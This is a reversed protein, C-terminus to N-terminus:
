TGTIRQGGLLLEGEKFEIRCGLEQMVERAAATIWKRNSEAMYCAVSLKTETYVDRMSKLDSERVERILYMRETQDLEALEAKNFIFINMPYSPVPIVRTNIAKVLNQDHMETKTLLTLRRVAEEKVREYVDKSKIGDTQEVGLFRYTDKEDPNITKM